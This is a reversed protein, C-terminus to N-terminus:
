IMADEAHFMEVFLKGRRDEALYGGTVFGPVRVGGEFSSNKYQRLPSNDGRDWDGGNDSTFVILTDDWMGNEKLYDVVDRVSEDLITIQAQKSKRATSTANDYLSTYSGPAHNPTHASQWALYLFFPNQQEKVDELLNLTMNKETWISYEGNIGRIVTESDVAENLWYDNKSISATSGNSDTYSQEFTHDYYGNLGSLSGSFSDFGRYMPTYEQSPFGLHWKSLSHLHTVGHDPSNDDLHM